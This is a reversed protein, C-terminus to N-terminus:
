RGFLDMRGAAKWVHISLWAPREPRWLDRRCEGRRELETLIDIITDMAPRNPIYKPIFKDGALAPWDNYITEADAYTM